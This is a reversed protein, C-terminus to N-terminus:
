FCFFVAGVEAKADGAARALALAEHAERVAQAEHAERVSLGENKPIITPRQCSFISAGLCYLWIVHGNGQIDSVDGSMGQCM